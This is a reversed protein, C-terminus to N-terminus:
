PIWALIEGAGLEALDGSYRRYLGTLHGPAVPVGRRDRLYTLLVLLHPPLYTCAYRYTAPPTVSGFAVISGRKSWLGADAGIAGFVAVTGALMARGAGDAVSGEVVILGRRLHSGTGRGASGRVIIEGGTMGRKAGPEAGGVGDGASGQLELVGGTMGRGLGDGADGEIVLEAQSLGAGLGDMLRLDGTIRVRPAPGGRVTFLDGLAVRGEGEVWMEGASIEADSLHHMGGWGAGSADVRRRLPARLTLVAEASV